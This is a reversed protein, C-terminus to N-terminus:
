DHVNTIKRYLNYIVFLITFILFLEIAFTINGTHPNKVVNVVAPESISLKNQQDSSVSSTVTYNGFKDGPVLVDYTLEEEGYPDIYDIRWQITRDSSSYVGDDSISDEVVEIEKPISTKVINNGSSANGTNSVLVKYQVRNNGSVSIQHKEQITNDITLVVEGVDEEIVPFESKCYDNAVVGSNCESLLSNYNVM